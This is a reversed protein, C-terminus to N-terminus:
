GGNILSIIQKVIPYSSYLTMKASDDLKNFNDVHPINLTSDDYSITRLNEFDAPKDNIDSTLCFYEVNNGYVHPQSYGARDLIILFSVNSANKLIDQLTNPQCGLMLIDGSIVDEQTLEYHPKLRPYQDVKGDAYYSEIVLIRTPMGYVIKLIQQLYYIFSDTYQVRSLEKFYLVKDYSHGQVEFVKDANYNIGYQYNIRAVLNNYKSQYDLKTQRENNLEAKIDEIEDLLTSAQNQLQSIQTSYYLMADRERKNSSAMSMITDTFEKEHASAVMLIERMNRCNIIKRTISDATEILEPNDVRVVLNPNISKIGRCYEDFGTPTFYEEVFDKRFIITNAKDTECVVKALAAKDHIFTYRSLKDEIAEGLSALYIM